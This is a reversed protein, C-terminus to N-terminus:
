ALLDKYIKIIPGIDKYKNYKTLSINEISLMSFDGRYGWTVSNDNVVGKSSPTIVGSTGGTLCYYINDGSKCYVGETYKTSPEWEKFRIEYFNESGTLKITEIDGINVILGNLMTKINYPVSCRLINNEFYIGYGEFLKVYRTDKDLLEPCEIYPNLTNKKIANNIDIPNIYKNKNIIFDVIIDGIADYGLQNPHVNDGMLPHNSICTRGFLLSQFDITETKLYKNSVAMYSYWLKDTNSQARDLDTNGFVQWSNPIRLIIYSKTEKTLRSISENLMSIIENQETTDVDNHGYSFIILPVKNLTNINNICNDLSYINDSSSKFNGDIFQSLKGGSVSWSKVEVGELVGGKALYKTSLNKYLHQTPCYDRYGVRADSTSDGIFIICKQTNPISRWTNIGSNKLQNESYNFKSKDVKDNELHNIKMNLDNFIERNILNEIVGNETLELVKKSVEIVLGENLLIELEKNQQILENSLTSEFRWLENIIENVKNALKYYLEMSTYVDLDYVSVVNLKVCMDKIKEVQEVTLDIKKNTM